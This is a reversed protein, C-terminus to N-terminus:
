AGLSNNLQDMMKHGYRQKGLCAAKIKNINEEPLDKFELLGREKALDFLKQGSESRVIVQNWNKDTIWGDKSRAAGISIDALEATMDTCFDCCGRACDNVEDIPIEIVGESTTIEMCAHKSPPIDLGLLEKTGIARKVMANLKRWDLTWGCFLGIVLKLKEVRERDNESSHTKMKGLARAQCPTAVVGFSKRGLASVRNFEGVTPANGFKSGSCKIADEAKYVTISKPLMDEGKDALVFGEVLGEKLALKVLTSVTGGHQAKKQIETDASRAMYMGKFAGLEETLDTMNFLSNKLEDWDTPIRPCYSFCRGEDRDCSFLAVTEANHNKMYPCLETCAGCGTCLGQNVVNSLLAAQGVNEKENM